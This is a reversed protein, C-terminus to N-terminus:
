TSLNQNRSSFPRTILSPPRGADACGSRIHIVFADSGGWRAFDARQPSGASEVSDKMEAAEWSVLYQGLRRDGALDVLPM